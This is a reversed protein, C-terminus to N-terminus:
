LMGGNLRNVMAARRGHMKWKSPLAQTAHEQSLVM